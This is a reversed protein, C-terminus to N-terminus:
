RQSEFGQQSNRIYMSAHQVVRFGTVATTAGAGKGKGDDGGDDGGGDSDAACKGKGDDGAGDIDPDGNGKGDGGRGNSGAAGTGTDYDGRGASDAAGKRKGANGGGDNGVAGKGQATACCRWPKQVMNQMLSATVMESPARMNGLWM